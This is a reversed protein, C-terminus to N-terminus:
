TRRDLTGRRSAFTEFAPCAGTRVGHFLFAAAPSNFSKLLGLRPFVCSIVCAVQASHSKLDSWRPCRLIGM